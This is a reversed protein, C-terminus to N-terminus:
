KNFDKATEMRGARTRIEELLGAVDIVPRHADGLRVLVRACGPSGTKDNNFLAERGIEVQGEFDDFLLAVPTERGALLLWSGSGSSPPLGLLGALDYVPVLAGRLTTIGALAPVNGPLPQIAKRKAMGTIELVRVALAEGGARFTLLSERDTSSSASPRAFSNDFELRMEAALAARSEM